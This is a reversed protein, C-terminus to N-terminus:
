QPLGMRKLLDIYRPDSRVPDMLKATKINELGRAKESYAKGLWYYAQDKDGLAAYNYAISCPDVYRRNALKKRLEIIRSVAARYGSTTYV